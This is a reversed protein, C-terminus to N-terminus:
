SYGFDHAMFLVDFMIMINEKSALITPNIPKLKVVTECKNKIVPITKNEILIIKIIVRINTFL